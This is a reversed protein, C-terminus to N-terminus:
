SSCPQCRESFGRGHKNCAGGKVVVNNCEPIFCKKRKAGHTYCIGGKKAEKNCGLVSCKKNNRVAGHKTCVGGNVAINSCRSSYNCRQQRAGHRVCVGGVRAMNTCGPAICGKRKSKRLSVTGALTPDATRKEEDVFSFETYIETAANHLLDNVENFVAASESSLSGCVDKDHINIFDLANNYDDLLLITLLQKEEDSFEWGFSKSANCHEYSSNSM